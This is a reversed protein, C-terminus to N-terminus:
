AASEGAEDQPESGGAGSFFERSKFPLVGGNEVFKIIEEYILHFRRYAQIVDGSKDAVADGIDLIASGYAPDLGIEDVVNGGHSHYAEGLGIFGAADGLLFRNQDNSDEPMRSGVWAILAAWPEPIEVGATALGAAVDAPQPPSGLAPDERIPPVERPTAPAQAPAPAAPPAPAAGSAPRAAKVPEGPRARAALSRADAYLHRFGGGLHGAFAYLPKDDGRWLFVGETAALICAVLGGTLPALVGLVTLAIVALCAFVLPVAWAGPDRWNGRVRVASSAAAAALALAIVWGAIVFWTGM